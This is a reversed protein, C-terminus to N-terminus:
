LNIIAVTEKNVFHPIVNSLRLTLIMVTVTKRVVQFVSMTLQSIRVATDNSACYFDLKAKTDQSM